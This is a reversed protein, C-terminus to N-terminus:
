KVWKNAYGNYILVPAPAARLEASATTAAAQRHVAAGTDSVAGHREGPADGAGSAPALQFRPASRRLPYSVHLNAAATDVSKSPQHGPRGRWWAKRPGGRGHVP